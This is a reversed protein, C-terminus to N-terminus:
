NKVFIKKPDIPFFRLGIAFGKTRFIRNRFKIYACKWSVRNKFNKREPISKILNYIMLAIVQDTLSIKETASVPNDKSHIRIDSCMSVKGCIECPGHSESMGFDDPSQCSACLFM